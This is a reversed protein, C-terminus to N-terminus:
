RYPEFTLEGGGETSITVTHGNALLTYETDSMGYYTKFNPTLRNGSGGTERGDENKIIVIYDDM